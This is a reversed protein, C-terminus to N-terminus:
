SLSKKKPRDAASAPADAATGRIREVLEAQAPPAEGTERVIGVM